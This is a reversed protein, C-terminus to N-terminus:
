PAPFPSLCTGTRPPILPFVFLPYPSNFFLVCVLHPFLSFFAASHIHLLSLSLVALIEHSPLFSPSRICHVLNRTSARTGRNRVPGPDCPDQRQDHGPVRPGQTDAQAATAPNAAAKAAKEPHWRCNFNGPHSARCCTGPPGPVQPFQSHIQAGASPSV